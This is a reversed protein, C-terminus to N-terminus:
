RFMVLSTAAPVYLPHRPAGARTLGLARSQGLMGRVSDARTTGHAVRNAGWACVVLRARDRMGALAVDNEPGVPDEVGFLEKPDTARWAFLNGVLLSGYGWDKAFSICRRITPDDREADATSPNLMVFLVAPKDGDWHRELTYRYRGCDSITATM